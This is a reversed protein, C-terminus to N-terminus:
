EAALRDASQKMTNASEIGRGATLQHVRRLTGTQRDKTENGALRKRGRGGTESSAMGQARQRDTQVRRRRRRKQKRERWKVATDKAGSAPQRLETPRTETIPGELFEFCWEPM